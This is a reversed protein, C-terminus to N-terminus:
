RRAQVPVPTRADMVHELTSSPLQLAAVVARRRSDDVARAHLGTRFGACSGSVVRSPPDLAAPRKSRMSWNM